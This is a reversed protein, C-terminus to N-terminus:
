KGQVRRFYLRLAEKLQARAGASTKADELQDLDLQLPVGEKKVGDLEATLGCREDSETFVIKARTFGGDDRALQEITEVLTRKIEVQEGAPVTSFAATLNVDAM